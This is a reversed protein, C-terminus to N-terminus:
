QAGIAYWTSHSIRFIYFYSENRSEFLEYAILWVFLYKFNMTINLLLLFMKGLWSSWLPSRPSSSTWVLVQLALLTIWTFLCFHLSSCELCLSSHKCLCLHTVRNETNIFLVAPSELNHFCLLWLRPPSSQSPFSLFSSLQSFDM